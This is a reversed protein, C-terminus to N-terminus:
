KFKGRSLSKKLFKKSIKQIYVKKTFNKIKKTQKQFKRINKQIKKFM